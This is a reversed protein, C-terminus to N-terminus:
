TLWPLAVTALGLVLFFGCMDTVTTLVPGSAVAPDARFRKLLLPVTGGISVAIITNLGLAVGVVAGLLPSGQWLYAAISLLIGLTLGNFLGVSVEQWWVRWVDRPEVIGLTLERLSVAVAQNGSCGSMDSVIPLFVALAIVASVTDQFFAIVSAAIINLVINVSLWSLRRRSRTFVPMARLEEGTVIGQVKLQDSQAREAIAEQVARRRVRGVLRGSDDVVPVGLTEYEDFYEELDDLSASTRVTYVDRALRHLAAGPSTLLVDRIEVGGTPRGRRDLLLIRSPLQEVELRRERLDNLFDQVRITNPYAFLETEMLGGAVDPSYTILERVQDAIEPDMEDLIADADDKDMEGLLDAGEDSPLEDVIHAAQEADLQEILDAAHADPIDDLLEAAYDPSIMALLRQQDDASLRFLVRVTQDAPLSELLSEASNRDGEDLFARLTEWPAVENIQAMMREM